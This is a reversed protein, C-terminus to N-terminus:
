ETIKHSMDRRSLQSFRISRLPRHRDAVTVQVQVAVSSDAPLDHTVTYAPSDRVTAPAALQNEQGKDRAQSSMSTKGTAASSTRAGGGQAGGTNEGILLQHDSYIM